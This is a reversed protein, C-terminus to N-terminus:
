ILVQLKGNGSVTRCWVDAAASVSFTEVDTGVFIEIDTDRDIATTPTPDGDGLVRIFYQPTTNLRKFFAGAANDVIQTWATSVIDVKTVRNAM